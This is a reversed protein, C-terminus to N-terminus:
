REEVVNALSAELPERNGRVSNGRMSLNESDAADFPLERQVHAETHGEAECCSTPVGISTIESSSLQGAHAGTLAEGAMNGHSACSEPDPHNAVGKRHPEKM